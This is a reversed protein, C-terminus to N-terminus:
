NRHSPLVISTDTVIAGTGDKLNVAISGTDFQAFLASGALFLCIALFRTVVAFGSRIM